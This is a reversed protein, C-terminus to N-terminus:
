HLSRWYQRAKQDRVVYGKKVLEARLDDADETDNERLAKERAVFITDVAGPLDPTGPVWRQFADAYPDDKQWPYEHQRFAQEIRDRKADVEDRVIERSANDIVVLRKGDLFVASVAPRAVQRSTGSKEITVADSAVTVRLADRVTVVALAVGIGLGAVLGILAGWRLDLSAVIKLPGQFPAWPLDAAWRAIWPLGLGLAMCVVPALIFLSVLDGTTPGLMVPQHGPTDNTGGTRSSM